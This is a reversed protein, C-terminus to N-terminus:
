LVGTFCLRATIEITLAASAPIRKCFAKSWRVDAAQATRQPGESWKRM